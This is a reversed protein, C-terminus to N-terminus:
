RPESEIGYTFIPSTPVLFTKHVLHLLLPFINEIARIYALDNISRTNASDDPSPQNLSTHNPHVHISESDKHNCIVDNERWVKEVEFNNQAWYKRFKQQRWPRLKWQKNIFTVSIGQVHYGFNHQILWLHRLKGAQDQYYTTTTNGNTRSPNTRIEDDANKGFNVSMEYGSKQNGFSFEQDSHRRIDISASAQNSHVILKDGFRASIIALYKSGIAIASLSLNKM